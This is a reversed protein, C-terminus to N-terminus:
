KNADATEQFDSRGTRAARTSWKTDCQVLEGVQGWVCRGMRSFGKEPTMGEPVKVRM